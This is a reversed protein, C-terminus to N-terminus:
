RMPTANQSCSVGTSRGSIMNVKNLRNHLLQTGQTLWDLPRDELRGTSNAVQLYEVASWSGNLM